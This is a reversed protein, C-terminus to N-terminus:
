KMPKTQSFCLPFNWLRMDNGKQIVDAERKSESGSKDILIIAVKNQQDKASYLVKDVNQLIENADQANANFGALLAVASVIVLLKLNKM